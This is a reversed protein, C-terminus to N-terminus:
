NREAQIKARAEPILVEDVYRKNEPSEASFDGLEEDPGPLDCEEIDEPHLGFVNKAFLVRCYTGDVILTLTGDESVSYITGRNGSAKIRYLRDFPYKLCIDRVIPPRSAVWEDWMKRQEETWEIWKAM